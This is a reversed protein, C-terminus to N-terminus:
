WRNANSLLWLENLMRIGHIWLFSKDDEVWSEYQKSKLLWTGTASQRKKRNSAHNLFPDPADLWEYIDKRKQDISQKQFLQTLDGVGDQISLSLCSNLDSCLRQSPIHVRM